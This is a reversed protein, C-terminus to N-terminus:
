RRYEKIRTERCGHPGHRLYRRRWSALEEASLDLAALAEAATFAGAEIAQVVEAKRRFSWRGSAPRLDGPAIRAPTRAPTM